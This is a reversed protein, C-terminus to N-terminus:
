SVSRRQRDAVDDVGVRVRIEHAAVALKGFGSFGNEGVYEAIRRQGVRHRVAAGRRNQRM